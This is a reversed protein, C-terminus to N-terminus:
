LYDWKQLKPLEESEFKEGIDTRFVPARVDIQKMAEVCQENAKAINEDVFCVTSVWGYDDATRYVDKEADHMVYEPMVNENWEADIPQGKYTHKNDETSEAPFDGCGIVTGVCWGDKYALDGQRRDIINAYFQGVPMDLLQEQLTHAPYGMRPTWEYLWAENASVVGCNADINLVVDRAKELLVPTLPELMMELLKTNTGFKMLTGMEGTSIGLDGNLMKKHERNYEVFINGSDDRLWDSGLWFAGVAFELGDVREQLMMQSMKNALPHQKIWELQLLVDEGSDDKGVYNFEKPAHGLQKLCWADPHKKVYAIAEDVSKVEHFNPIPVGCEQATKSQFVRDVELRQTFKNGGYVKYGADRFQTMDQEGDAIIYGTRGVWNLADKIGDIHQVMGLLHDKSDKDEIHMAVDEGELELRYALSCAMGEKGILLFRTM